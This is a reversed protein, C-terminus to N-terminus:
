DTITGWVAVVFAIKFWNTAPKFSPHGSCSLNGLEMDTGQAILVCQKKISCSSTLTKVHITGTMISQDMVDAEGFSFGFQWAWTHLFRIAPHVENPHEVFINTQSLIRAFHIRLMEWGCPRACVRRVTCVWFTSCQVFRLLVLLPWPIPLFMGYCDWPRGM